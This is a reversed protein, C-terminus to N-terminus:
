ISSPVSTTGPMGLCIFVASACALLLTPLLPFFDEQIDSEGEMADLQEKPGATNKRALLSHNSRAVQDCKRLRFDKLLSSTGKGKKGALTPPPLCPSVLSVDCLLDQFARERACLHLRAKIQKILSAVPSPLPVGSWCEQRAFGM